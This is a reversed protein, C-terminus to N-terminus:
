PTLFAFSIANWGGAQSLSLQIKLVCVFSVRKTTSVADVFRPL